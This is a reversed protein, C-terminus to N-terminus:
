IETMYLHDRTCRCHHGLVIKWADDKYTTKSKTLMGLLSGYTCSDDWVLHTLDVM